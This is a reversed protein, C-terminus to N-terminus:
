ARAYVCFVPVCVCLSLSLSLSLYNPWCCPLVRAFAHFYRTGASSTSGGGGSSSSSTAAAAAASGGPDLSTTMERGVEGFRVLTITDLLSPTRGGGVGLVCACACACVGSDTTSSPMAHECRLVDSALPPHAPSCAPSCSPQDPRCIETM